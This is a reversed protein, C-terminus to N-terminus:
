GVILYGAKIIIFGKGIDALRGLLNFGPLLAKRVLAADAPPNSRLPHVFDDSGTTKVSEMGPVPACADPVLQCLGGPSLPEHRFGQCGDNIEPEPFHAQVPNVRDYEGPIRCGDFQELFKTEAILADKFFVFVPAVFAKDIQAHERNQPLAPPLFPLPHTVDGGTRRPDRV